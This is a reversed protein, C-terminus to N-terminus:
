FHSHIKQAYIRKAERIARSLKARATRLGAKDGSKFAKDRAGLLVRVEATMWPKQNPHTTSVKSVTVDDICKSIYGTVSETYKGLNISDASTAAEKFMEWDTHEFCDQLASVAGPPWTKEQKRDMKARRILPRFAPILMVSVHDSFGYHPRPEARLAGPINTYVMNQVNAGRMAFDVYLVANKCWETNIYVCVGGGRAKGCLEPDRDARFCLLGELQVASDSTSSTLWTETFVFVCCDRYECQTARKRRAGIWGAFERLATFRLLGLARLEEQLGNSLLNQPQDRLQLLSQRHYITTSTTTIM